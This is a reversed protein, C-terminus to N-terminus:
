DAMPKLQVKARGAVFFVVMLVIAAAILGGSMWVLTQLADDKPLGAIVVLGATEAIFFGFGIVFSYLGMTRGYSTEHTEDAMMALAAPIFAGAGLGLVAAPVLYLPNLAAMQDIAGPLLLLATIGGISTLGYAMVPVRGIKDSVWGWLPQMLVLVLGGAAFMLSIQLPTNGEELLIRPGYTIALGMLIAVTLWIPIIRRIAPQKLGEKFEQWHTMERREAAEADTLVPDHALYHNLLVASLALFGAATLFTAINPQNAVLGPAELVAGGIVIGVIYGAFTSYDYAGMQRGRDTAHAYDAIMAVAPAVTAAAGVGHVAHVAALYWVNDWLTYLGVMVAALTTGAVIVKKRGIRDSEVGFYNATLMEAAPYPAAIIAVKLLGSMETPAHEFGVYHPLAIIVIGFALRMVFNGFYLVKLNTHTVPAM